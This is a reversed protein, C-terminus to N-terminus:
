EQQGTYPEKLATIYELRREIAQQKTDFYGLHKLKGHETAHALWKGERKAFHVGKHGSTSNRRARSNIANERQSVDRLNAWANNTPDRDIHDVVGTPMAGTMYLFALRHLLYCSGDISVILYGAGSSRRCLDGVRVRNSTPKVWSFDGTDPNYHLLERLRGAPPPTKM